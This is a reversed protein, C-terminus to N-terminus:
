RADTLALPTLRFVHDALRSARAVDRAKLAARVEDLKEADAVSLAPSWEGADAVLRVSVEAVLDGERLLKKTANASMETETSIGRGM